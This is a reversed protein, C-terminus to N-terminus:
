YTHLTHAVAILKGQMIAKLLEILIGFLLLQRDWNTGNFM